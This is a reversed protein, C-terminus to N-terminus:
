KVLELVADAVREASIRTMCRHDIPCVRKLCPSCEVPERIVVARGGTPGTAVHDTAGFVTVTPIGLASAIHMSGSDNTLFARCAAAMDIFGTLSTAGSLDAAAAGRERLMAAVAGCVDVEAPTGFVLVSAGLRKAVAAGAEAFREPLWRKATGYAAGPSIGIWPGALGREQLQRAGDAAAEVAGELRITVEAPLEGALGLRRLLELYYFSEHRPIAGPKPREVPHTLLIRRGDRNYGARVPIRALYATAASDFSNPMLLAWDFRERRLDRALRWKAGWDGAGPKPAYAIVRDAFSERAYVGAVWSRALVAIHASPCAGRVARLAPLSMIADGVWNTARILIRAPAPGDLLPM